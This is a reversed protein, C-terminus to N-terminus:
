SVLVHIANHEKSYVKMSFNKNKKIVEDILGIIVFLNEKGWCCLICKYM